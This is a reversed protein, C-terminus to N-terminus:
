WVADSLPSVGAYDYRPRPPAPELPIDGEDDDEKRRRRRMALIAAILCMTAACITVM